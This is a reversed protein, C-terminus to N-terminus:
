SGFRDAFDWQMGRRERTCIVPTSNGDLTVVFGTSDTSFANLIAAIQGFTARSGAERPYESPSIGQKALRLAERGEADAEDLTTAALTVLELRGAVTVRVSWARHGSPRVTLRIRPDGPHTHVGPRAREPAGALPRATRQM